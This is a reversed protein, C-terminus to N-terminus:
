YNQEIFARAQEGWRVWGSENARSFFVKTGGEFERSWVAREPDSGATPTANNLPAGLPIDFAKPWVPDSGCWSGCIHYTHRQAFMLFASYEQLFEPSNIDDNYCLEHGHAEFMYGQSASTNMHMMNGWWGAHKASFAQVQAAALDPNLDGGSGCILPGGVQQQLLKLSELKATMFAPRAGKSIPAEVKLCGDVFCGDVAGSRTMGLCGDTYAQRGGPKRFDFFAAYEPPGSSICETGNMTDGTFCAETRNAARSVNYWPMAKNSHFYAIVKTSANVAKIQAGM